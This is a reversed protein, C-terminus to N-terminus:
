VLYGQTGADHTPLVWAVRVMWREGTPAPLLSRVSPRERQAMFVVHCEMPTGTVEFAPRVVLSAGPLQVM